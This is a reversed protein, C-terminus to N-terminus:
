LLIMCPDLSPFPPGSRTGGVGGPFHCNLTLIPILLQVRQFNQLGEGAQVCLFKYIEKLYVM